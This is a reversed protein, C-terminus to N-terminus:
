LLLNKWSWSGGLKLPMAKIFSGVALEDSVYQRVNEGETVEEFAVAISKSAIMIVWTIPCENSLHFKGDQAALVLLLGYGPHTRQVAQEFLKNSSSKTILIEAFSIEIVEVGHCDEGHSPEFSDFVDECLRGAFTAVTDSVIMELPSAWAREITNM